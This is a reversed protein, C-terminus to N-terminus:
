RSEPTDKSEPHPQSDDIVTDFHMGGYNFAEAGHSIPFEHDISLEQIMRPNISGFETIPHKIAAPLTMDFNLYKPPISSNVHIFPESSPVTGLQLQSSPSYHSSSSSSASVRSQLLREKYLAIQTQVYWIEETIHQLQLFLQHIIACCGEVPFQARMNSEYIVSQMAEHRLDPHVEKLINMINSVGFLRHANRFVKPRDAPFYPALPCDNTCRRRQHKCAACAPTMGGKITM